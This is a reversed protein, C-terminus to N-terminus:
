EGGPLLISTKTVLATCIVKRELGKPNRLKPAVVKDKCLINYIKLLYIIANETKGMNLSTYENKM